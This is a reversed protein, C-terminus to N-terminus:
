VVPTNKFVESLITMETYCEKPAHNSLQEM